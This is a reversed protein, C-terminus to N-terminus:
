RKKSQNSNPNIKGLKSEILNACVNTLPIGIADKYNFGLLQMAKLTDKSILSKIPNVMDRQIGKDPSITLLLDIANSITNQLHEIDDDNIQIREVENKYISALRIAEERESILENILADYQSRLNDNNKENKLQKIKSSVTSVTGKVVLATLQAGAESLLIDISNM